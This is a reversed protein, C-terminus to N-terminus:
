PFACRPAKSQLCPLSRPDPAALMADILGALSKPILPLIPFAPPHLQFALRNQDRARCTSEARRHRFRDGGAAGVEGEDVEVDLRQLRGTRGALLVANRRTGVGRVHGVLVAD